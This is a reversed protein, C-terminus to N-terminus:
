RFSESIARLHNMGGGSAGFGSGGWGGGGGGGAGQPPPPAGPESGDALRLGVYQRTGDPHVRYTRYLLQGDWSTEEGPSPRMMVFGGARQFALDEDPIAATVPPEEPGGSGLVVAVVVLLCAAAAAAAVLRGHPVPRRAERSKAPQRREASRTTLVQTWYESMVAAFAARTEASTREVSAIGEGLARSGYIEVLRPPAGESEHVVAVAGGGAEVFSAILRAGDRARREDANAEILSWTGPALGEVPPTEYRVAVVYTAHDGRPDAETM